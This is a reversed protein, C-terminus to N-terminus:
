LTKEGRLAEVVEIGGINSITNFLIEPPQSSLEILELIKLYANSRIFRHLIAESEWKQEIVLRNENELDQYMRYSICGPIVHMPGILSDLLELAAKQKEPFVTIRIISQIM